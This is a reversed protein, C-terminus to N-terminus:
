SAGHWEKRDDCLLMHRQASLTLNLVARPRGGSGPARRASNTLPAAPLEAAPTRTVRIRRGDLPTFHLADDLQSTFNM